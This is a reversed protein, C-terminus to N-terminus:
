MSKKLNELLDLEEKTLKAQKLLQPRRKLTLLIQQTRRWKYISKHDGQLLVEPVKYGRFEPPRTYQPYELLGESFSEEQTSTINGIVGPILRTVGEIVVMSAVEGGFLVYDGISIEEDIFFSIREDIGEYRGCILILHTQKQSLELLKTQTLLYGKPTLLIKYGEGISELARVVPEIKIVMGSGGGYPTDDVKRHKDQSFDRINVLSVGIKGEKIAKGLLSTKLFGEFIEPFLTLITFKM